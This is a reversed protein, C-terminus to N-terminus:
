DSVEDKNNLCAGVYRWTGLVFNLYLITGLSMPDLTTLSVVIYLVFEVYIHAYLYSSSNWACRLWNLIKYLKQRYIPDIFAFCAMYKVNLLFAYVSSELALALYLKFLVGLLGLLWVFTHFSFTTWIYWLIWDVCSQSWLEVLSCILLWHAYFYSFSVHEFVYRMKLTFFCIVLFSIVFEWLSFPELLLGFV